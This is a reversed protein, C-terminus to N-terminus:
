SNAINGEKSVVAFGVHQFAREQGCDPEMQVLIVGISLNSRRLFDPSEALPLFYTELDFFHEGCDDVRFAWHDHDVKDEYNGRDKIMERVSPVKFLACSLRLEGGL